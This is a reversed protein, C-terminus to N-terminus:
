KGLYTNMIAMMNEEFVVSLHSVVETLPLIETTLYNTEELENNITTDYTISSEFLSLLQTLENNIIYTNEDCPITGIVSDYILNNSHNVLLSTVDTSYLDLFVIYEQGEQINISNTIYNSISHFSLGKIKDGDNYFGSDDLYIEVIDFVYATGVEEGGGNTRDIEGIIATGESATIKAVFNVNELLQAETKIVDDSFNVETSLDYFVERAFEEQSKKTSSCGAVLILSIALLLITIKKM